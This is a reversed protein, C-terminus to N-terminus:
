AAGLRALREHLMFIRAQVATMDRHVITVKLRKAMTQSMVMWPRTAESHDNDDPAVIVFTTVGSRSVRGVSYTGLMEVKRM